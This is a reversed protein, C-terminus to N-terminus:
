RGPTRGAARQPTPLVASWRIVAFALAAASGFMAITKRTGAMPTKGTVGSHESM